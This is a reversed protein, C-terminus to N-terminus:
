VQQQMPDIIKKQLEAIKKSIRSEFEPRDAEVEMGSVLDQCLPCMRDHNEAYFLVSKKESGLDQLTRNLNEIQNQLEIPDSAIYSDWKDGDLARECMPCLTRM